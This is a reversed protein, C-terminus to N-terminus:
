LDGSSERSADALAVSALWAAHSPRSTVFRLLRCAGDARHFLWATYTRQAHSPALLRHRDLFRKSDCAARSTRSIRGQSAFRRCKGVRAASIETHNTLISKGIRSVENAADATGLRIARLLPALHFRRKNTEAPENPRRQGDRRDAEARQPTTPLHRSRTVRAIVM